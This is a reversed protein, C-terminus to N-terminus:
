RRGTRSRKNSHLHLTVLNKTLSRPKQQQQLIAWTYVAGNYQLHSHQQHTDEPTVNTETQRTKSHENTPDGVRRRPQKGNAGKKAFLQRSTQSPPAPLIIELFARSSLWDSTRNATKKLVTYVYISMYTYNSM